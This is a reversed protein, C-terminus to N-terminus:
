QADSTGEKNEPKPQIVILGDNGVLGGAAELMATSSRGVAEKVPDLQLRAYIQTSQLDAHGLTKGVIALSIGMAAQWSGQTRRLDHIHLDDIAAAKLIKGWAKRPDILHGAGTTAPFVWPSGNRNEARKKLIAVAPECLALSTPRKNKCKDAPVHWVSNELDLEEWRMSAVNGRRAGTFLLLLFYAQWYTDMGALASFFAKMEGPLLYRERSREPYNPVEKCPNPGTYGVAKAAKSFMTALLAKCRNAQVPGSDKALTGHWKEVSTPKILSLKRNHWGAMYKDYMRQDDPWTRKKPKAHFELYHEFLEKLIPEGRKAKREAAPDKGDAKAGAIRRCAKRANEVTMTPFAGLVLKSPNGNIRGYFYFKKSKGSVRLILNPCAADHYTVRQAVTQAVGLREIRTKTFAITDM